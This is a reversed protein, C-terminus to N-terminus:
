RAGADRRVLGTGDALLAGGSLSENALSPWADEPEPAALSPSPTPALNCLPWSLGAAVIDVGGRRGRARLGTPRLWRMEVM